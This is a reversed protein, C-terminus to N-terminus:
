LTRGANVGGSRPLRRAALVTALVGAAFLGLGEFLGRPHYALAVRHSGASLRVAQFAADARLVPAAADDVRATWGSAFANFVVLFGRAPLSVDLVIRAPARSVLRISRRSDGGEWGSERALAEGSELIVTERPDLTPDLTSALASAEPVVRAEPVLIVRPLGEFKEVRLPPPFNRPMGAPRPANVVIEAVGGLQYSRPSGSGLLEETRRLTPGGGDISEFGFRMGLARNLPELHRIVFIMSPDRYLVPNLPEAASFFRRPFGTEDKGLHESLGRALDPVETQVASPATPAARRAHVTLDVCLIGLAVAPLGRRRSFHALALASGVALAFSWSVLYRAPVRFGRVLPLDALLRYPGSEGLAFVLGVLGGAALTVFLV